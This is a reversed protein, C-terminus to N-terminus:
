PEAKALSLGKELQEFSTEGVIRGVERQEADLFITTPLGILGLKTALAGDPDFISPHTWGFEQYFARAGDVTDQFDIGLMVAEPHGDVFRKIAPAENRCPPCWSAWVNIVVPKGRFQSLRVQEGTVPDEGAVDPAVPGRKAALDGPGLGVKVSGVEKTEDGRTALVAGVAVVAAVLGALV